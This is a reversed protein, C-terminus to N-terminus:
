CTAVLDLRRHVGLLVPTWPWTRDLRLEVRGAHRVIRAAIALLAYRLRRPEARALDHDDDIHARLAALLLGALLVLEFWVLNAAWAGFPLRGLGTDKLDKIRNEVRAHTRGILELDVPDGLDNTLTVQHRWGNHDWLRLSAGPHPEERRIIARTGAPAWDPVLDPVERVQAGERPQGDADFAQAWGDEDLAAVIDARAASTKLGVYFVLNRAALGRVIKGYGGATDTRVVIRRGVAAVDDGPRHGTQWSAPLCEIAQDVVALHAATDNATANGPRLVGVPVGLPEIFALMPHFGFGRKFTPAAQQKNESHLHLLTADVDLVVEDAAQLGARDALTAVAAQRVAVMGARRQEDVDLNVTRWATADSAVQGFLVPQDRLTALDSVCRGGAGIMMALQTLVTGRDHATSRVTTGAMAQSLGRAVGLRDALRGLMWTGAQGTVGKGDGSVVVKTIPGTTNVRL